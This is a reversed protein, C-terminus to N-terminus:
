GEDPDTHVRWTFLSEAVFNVLLGAGIGGVKSVVFWGDLGAIALDAGIVRYLLRFTGLQVLIGGTRVLNSRALRRLTPRIGGTGEESFTWNDNLFFMVVVSVEIGVFVAIEPYVGLERLATATTVDFLAGVVGVSAFKGFRVASVLELFRRVVRGNALWTRLDALLSRASM